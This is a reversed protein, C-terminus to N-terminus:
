TQDLGQHVLAGAAAVVMTAIAVDDTTVPGTTPAKAAGNIDQLFQLELQLQRDPYSRVRRRQVAGRFVDAYIRNNTRTHPIDHVNIRQVIPLKRIRRHLDIVVFNGGHQDVTILRPQFAVIDLEIQAYVEDEWPIDAGRALWRRTTDIVAIREGDIDEAHGIAYATPDSRTSPDIHM